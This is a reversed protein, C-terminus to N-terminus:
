VCSAFVGGLGVSAWQKENSLSLIFFLKPKTSQKSKVGKLICGGQPLLIGQFVIRGPCVSRSFARRAARFLTHMSDHLYFSPKPVLLHTSLWHTLAKTYSLITAQPSSFPPHKPVYIYVSCQTQQPNFLSPSRLCWRLIIKFAALKFSHAYLVSKCM